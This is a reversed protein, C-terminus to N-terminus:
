DSRAVVRKKEHWRWVNGPRLHVGGLWRDIGNVLVRDEIGGHVARGANTVALGSNWFDDSDADHGHHLSGIEM